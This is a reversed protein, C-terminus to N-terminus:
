PEVGADALAKRLRHRARHLAVKLTNLPLDLVTGIEQYTMSQMERMVILARDRPSMRRLAQVIMTQLESLGVLQDPGPRHDPLSESLKESAAERRVTRKRLRDLCLRHITRLLWTGAADDRVALRHAWLRGFGDQVVDRAEELDGLLWAAYSYARDGHRRLARGFGDQDM